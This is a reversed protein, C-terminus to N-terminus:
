NKLHSNSTRRHLLIGTIAMAAPTRLVSSTVQKQMKRRERAEKFKGIWSVSAMQQGSTELAQIDKKHQDTIIQARMSNFAFSLGLLAAEGPEAGEQRLKDALILGQRVVPAESAGLQAWLAERAQTSATRVDEAVAESIPPLLENTLPERESM